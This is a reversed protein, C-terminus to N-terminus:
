RLVESLGFLDFSELGHGSEKDVVQFIGGRSEGQHQLIKSQMEVIRGKAFVSKPANRFCHRVDVAENSTQTRQSALEGHLRDLRVEVAQDEFSQGAKWFGRVHVHELLEAVKGFHM